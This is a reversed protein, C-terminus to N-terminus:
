KDYKRTCQPLHTVKHDIIKLKMQTLQCPAFNLYSTFNPTTCENHDALSIISSVPETTVKITCSFVCLSRQTAYYYTCLRESVNLLTDIRVAWCFIRRVVHFCHTLTRWCLLQVNFLTLSRVFVYIFTSSLPWKGHNLARKIRKIKAM